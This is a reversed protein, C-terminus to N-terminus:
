KKVLCVAGEDEWEEGANVEAMLKFHEEDLPLIIVEDEDTEEMLIKLLYLLKLKKSNTNDM